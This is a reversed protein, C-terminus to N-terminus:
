RKGVQDRDGHETLGLIKPWELREHFLIDVDTYLVLPDLIGVVPVQFIGWKQHSDPSKEGPSIRTKKRLRLFGLRM